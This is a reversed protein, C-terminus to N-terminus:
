PGAKIARVCAACRPDDDTAVAGTIRTGCAGRALLGHRIAVEAHAVRGSRTTMWIVDGFSSPEDRIRIADACPRGAACEPCGKPGASTWREEDATLDPSLWHRGSLFDEPHSKVNRWTEETRDYDTMVGAGLRPRLPHVQGSRRPRVGRSMVHVQRGQAAGARVVLV